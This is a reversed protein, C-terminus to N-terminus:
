SSLCFLNMCTDHDSHSPVCSYQTDLSLAIYAPISTNHRASLTLMFTNGTNVFMPGVTSQVFDNSM